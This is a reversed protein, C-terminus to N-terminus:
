LCRAHYNVAQYTGNREEYNVKMEDGADFDIEQGCEACTEGM